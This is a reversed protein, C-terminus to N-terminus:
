DSQKKVSGFPKQICSRSVGRVGVFLEQVFFILSISSRLVVVFSVCEGSVSVSVCEFVHM